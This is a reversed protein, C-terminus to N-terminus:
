AEKKRVVMILVVLIYLIFMGVWISHVEVKAEGLVNGAQAQMNHLNPVVKLIYKILEGGFGGLIDKIMSLLSHFIGAFTVAAAISGAVYKPLVVSLVSTLLAIITINIGLIFYAPLLRWAEAFKGQAIVFVFMALFLIGESLLGSLVNALALEGHYRPQSIGRIWVLHSTHREYENPITSLSMVLTLFCGVANVVVVLIPALMKYDTIAMGNISLSGNGTGFLLLILVGIVSVIYLEKRRIKEKLATVAINM